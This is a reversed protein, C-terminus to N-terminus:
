TGHVRRQTVVIEALQHRGRGRRGDPRGELGLQDAQLRACGVVEGEDRAVRVARGGFRRFRRVRLVHGILGVRRRKAAAFGAGREVNLPLQRRTVAAAIRVAADVVMVQGDGPRLELEFANGLAVRGHGGGGAPVIQLGERLVLHAHAEEVAEAGGVPRVDVVQNGGGVHGALGVQVLVATPLRDLSCSVQGQDLAGEHRVRVRDGLDLDLRLLGGFAFQRGLHVGERSRAEVLCAERKGAL